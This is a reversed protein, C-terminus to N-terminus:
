IPLFAQSCHPFGPKPTKTQNKKKKKEGPPLSNPLLWQRLGSLNSPCLEVWPSEFKLVVVVV